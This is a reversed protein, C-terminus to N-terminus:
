YNNLNERSILYRIPHNSTYKQITRGFLKGNPYVWDCLGRRKVDQNTNKLCSYFEEKTVEELMDKIEYKIEM